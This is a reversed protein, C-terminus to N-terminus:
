KDSGRRAMGRRWSPSRAIALRSSPLGESRTERPGAVSMPMRAGTRCSGDSWPIVAALPCCACDVTHGRWRVSWSVVLLRGALRGARERAAGRRDRSSAPPPAVASTLGGLFPASWSSGLRSAFRRRFAPTQGKGCAWRAGSLTRAGRRIGCPLALFAAPLRVRRGYSLHTRLWGVLRCASRRETRRRHSAADLKWPSSERDHSHRYGGRGEPRPPGTKPSGDSSSLLM